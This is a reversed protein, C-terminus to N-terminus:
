SGRYLDNLDSTAFNGSELPVLPRLDPPIVPIVDMIMWEPNNNSEASCKSYGCASSSPSPRASKSKSEKLEKRLEQITKKIDIQRILQRIAEAGMDAKFKQGYKERAAKYQEETLLEGRKLPV